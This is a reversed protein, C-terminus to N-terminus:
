IYTFGFQFISNNNTGGDVWINMNGNTTYLDASGVGGNLEGYYIGFHDVNTGQVNQGVTLSANFPNVVALDTTTVQFTSVGAVSQDVYEFPALGFTAFGVYDISALGDTSIAVKGDVYEISALGTTDAAGVGTLQSGDGTYSTANVTGAINVGTATTELQTSGGGLM